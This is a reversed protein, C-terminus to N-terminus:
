FPGVVFKQDQEGDLPNNYNQENKGGFQIGRRM